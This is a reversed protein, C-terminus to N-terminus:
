QAVSINDNVSLVLQLRSPLKPMYYDPTQEVGRLRAEVATFECAKAHISSALGFDTAINEAARILYNTYIGGNGFDHAFEDVGCAYLSMMQPAALMNRNNYRQRCLIRKWDYAEGLGDMAVSESNKVLRREPLKRCCDFINLQREALDSLDRENIEEGNPNLELSTGRVYEGHGSFYFLVFDFMGKRTDFLIMDLEKRSVNTRKIIEEREWAGGKNSYLFSFVKDLDVNTSLIGDIHGILIARRKM